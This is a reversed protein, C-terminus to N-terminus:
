ATRVTIIPTTPYLGKQQERVRNMLIEINYGKDDGYTKAGWYLAFEAAKWRLWEINVESNVEDNYLALTPHDTEHGLIITWDDPPAYGYDFRLKSGWQKWHTSPPKYAPNQPDKFNVRRITDVTVPVNFEVTEGDGTLSTDEQIVRVEDLADNVAAVLRDWPYIARGLAYKDTAVLTSPTIAPFTLKSQAYATVALVRGAYTGSLVWLTGRDWYQNPQVMRLTDTLTTANGATAEGELVETIIRALSLTVRALTTM